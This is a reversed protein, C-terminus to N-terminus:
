NSFSFLLKKMRVLYPYKRYALQSRIDIANSVNSYISIMNSLDSCILHMSCNLKSYNSKLDALM